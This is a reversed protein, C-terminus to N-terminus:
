FYYTLIVHIFGSLPCNPASVSYCPWNPPLHLTWPGGHILTGKSWATPVAHSGHKVGALWSRRALDDGSAAQAGRCHEPGPSFFCDMIGDPAPSKKYGANFYELSSFPGLLIIIRHKVDFYNECCCISSRFM